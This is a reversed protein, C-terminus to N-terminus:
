QVIQSYWSANAKAAPDLFDGHNALEMGCVFDPVTWQPACSQRGVLDERGNYANDLADWLGYNQHESTKDTMEWYDWGVIFNYTDAGRLNFDLAFQAAYAQGREVQTSQCTYPPNSASDCAFGAFVSDPNAIFREDLFIPKNTYGYDKVLQNPDAVDQVVIADLYKGAQEFIVPRDYAGLFEQSFVLHHPAKTHVAAALTSFYEHAIHGLFNDLDLDVRPPNSLLLDPMDFSNPFWSSTGDEDLLGTGGTLAHPWGGYIYNITIAAGAPPASTFVIKVAGSTYNVSSVVANKSVGDINSSPGFTGTGSPIQQTVPLGTACDRDGGTLHLEFGVNDFWPCDGAITVGNVVIAVSWPDVVTHALTHIFTTTAGDGGGIVEGTVTKGSSGFSSYSAGWAANLAAISSYGPGADGTQQLWTPLEQKVYMAPNAYIARARESYVQYPATTAAMWGPHAGVGIEPEKQIKFGWTRDGDDLTIGLLWPSADLASFSPFPNGTGWPSPAGSSNAYITWNPDFFDALSDVRYGTYSSSMASVVDKYPYASRGSYNDSPHIQWIFPMHTPNGNGAYTQVPLAYWSSDDGVTNFNYLQLRQLLQSYAGFHDNGYKSTLVQSYDRADSEGVVQVSLMYFRNGAPDCFWWHQSAADKYTYFYGTVGDPCTHSADGGYEDLQGSVPRPGPDPPTPEPVKPEPTGPSAGPQCSLAPLSRVDQERNYSNVQVPCPRPSEAKPVNVQSTQSTGGCAVLFLVYLLVLLFNLLTVATSKTWETHAPGTLRCSSMTVENLNLFLNM